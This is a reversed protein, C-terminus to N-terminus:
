AQGAVIRFRGVPWVSRREFLVGMVLGAAGATLAHVAVHRLDLLRDRVDINAAVREIEDGRRHCVFVLNGIRARTAM